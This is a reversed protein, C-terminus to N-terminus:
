PSKRAADIAAIFNSLECYQKDNREGAGQKWKWEALLDYLYEVASDRQEQLRAIEARAATLDKSLCDREDVVRERIGDALALERDRVKLAQAAVRELQCAHRYLAEYEEPSMVVCERGEFQIRQAYEPLPYQRDDADTWPTDSNM